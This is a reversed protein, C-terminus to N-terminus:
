QPLPLRSRTKASRTSRTARSQSLTERRQAARASGWLAWGAAGGAFVLPMLPLAHRAESVFLANVLSAYVIVGAIAVLVVQRTRWLGAVIGAFSALILVLHLVTLPPIDRHIGGRTYDGWLRWVKAAMMGAFSVPEGLMYRRLNRLAELRLSEDRELSPNRAAVADLIRQGPLALDRVERYRPDHRRLEDGLERKIGYLSGRSPLHTGMFMNAAGGSSVPVLAGAQRSAFIVWPLIVMLTAALIAVGTLLGRGPSWRRWAWIAAVGAVIGPALLLDARTLITAGLLAGTLLFWVPHPRRVALAFAGLASTLWLAGLPESLLEGTARVLPPYLATAAAAAVGAWRGALLAGLAFAALIALVGVAALVPYAYPVDLKWGGGEPDFYNAIAFVVPAGPPWHTPNKMDVHGYHGRDSLNRALRAYAREDASQQPSPNAAAHARWGAGLLVVIALAALALRPWRPRSSPAAHPRAAM